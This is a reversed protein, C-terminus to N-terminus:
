KEGSWGHACANVREAKHRDRPVTPPYVKFSFASNSNRSKDSDNSKQEVGFLKLKMNKKKEESKIM